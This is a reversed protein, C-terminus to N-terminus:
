YSRDPSPRCVVWKDSLLCGDTLKSSMQIVRFKLPMHDGFIDASHICRRLARMAELVLRKVSPYEDKMDHRSLPKARIGGAFILIPPVRQTPSVQYM